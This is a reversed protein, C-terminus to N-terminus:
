APMMAASVPVRLQTRELRPLVEDRFYPFEDIYNVFALTTGDFGARSIRALTEAVLDPDGVIPFVGHGGAFRGRFTTFVEPPFSKANLQQLAMLKDVAPWDAHRNAYHQHYEEAERTTPRCVVYSTTFVRLDRGLAAAAQKVAAVDRAGQDLDVLVTFLIDTNRIAFDRGEASSAANLIPPETGGFPKPSGIVHQLHFYTGDWDFPQDSSWIRRVIDFWEQGLDYRTRHDSPLDLGFMGYEDRNWGCVINLAFRGHAIHDATVFQKAVVIPHTFATHVTAVVSIRRTAALLGAAWTITELTSGQFDTEGGYGSWRAIPLLFEIGAADAMRALALNNDWSADWREPVTTIAMGGSCNPSFFGLKLKNGNFLPAATRRM